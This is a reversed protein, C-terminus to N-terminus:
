YMAGGRNDVGGSRLHGMLQPHILGAAHLQQLAEPPISKLANQTNPHLQGFIQGIGMMGGPQAPRMAPGANGANVNGISPPQSPQPQPQMGGFVGGPMQGVPQPRQMSTLAGGSANPQGINAGIFGLGSAPLVNGTSGIM